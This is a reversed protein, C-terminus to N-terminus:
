EKIRVKIPTHIAISILKGFIAGRSNIPKVAQGNSPKLTLRFKHCVTFGFTGQLESLYWKGNNPVKLFEDDDASPLM